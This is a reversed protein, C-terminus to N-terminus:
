RQGYGGCGMQGSFGAGNAGQGMNMGMQMIQQMWDQQQQGGGYAPVVNNAAGTSIFGTSTPAPLAVSPQGYNFAAVPAPMASPQSMGYQPPKVPLRSSSNNYNDHPRFDNVGSGTSNRNRRPPSNRRDRHNNRDNRYRDDNHHMNGTSRRASIASHFTNINIRRALRTRLRVKPLSALM